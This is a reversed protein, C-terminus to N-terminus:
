IMFSTLGIFSKFGQHPNMCCMEAFIHVFWRYHGFTMVSPNLIGEELSLLLFACIMPLQCLDIVEVKPIRLLLQQHDFGWLSVEARPFFSFRLDDTISV